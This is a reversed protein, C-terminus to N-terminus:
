GLTIAFDKTAGYSFQACPDLKTSNTEQVQVRLVTDGTFTGTTPVTFDITKVGFGSQYGLLDSSNFIGDRDYDIWCGGLVPFQDGCTTINFSISYSQGRVVDAVLDLFNQPGLKGPCDSTERINRTHGILTVSGLNADDASTPGSKCYLDAAQKIEVSFDKTAGFDFSACPNLTSGITEQTQVRLRTKGPKASEPVTFSWSPNKSTTFNGLLENTDFVGNQDYDIWAGSVSTYTGGCTTVTTSLTYVKSSLDAVLATLDRPGLTGPCNSSDNISTSDGVLNTQGLNTDLTTSPGSACYQQARSQHVLLASLLVLM